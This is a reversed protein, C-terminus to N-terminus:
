PAAPCPRARAQPLSESIIQRLGAIEPSAINHVYKCASTRMAKAPIVLFKGNTREQAPLILIFRPNAARVRLHTDGAGGTDHPIWAHEV